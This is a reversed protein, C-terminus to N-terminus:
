SDVPPFPNIILIDIPSFLGGIESDGVVAWLPEFVSRVFSPRQVVMRLYFPTTRDELFKPDLRNRTVKRSFNTTPTAYGLEFRFSKFQSRELFVTIEDRLAIAHDRARGKQQLEIIKRSYNHVAQEVTSTAFFFLGIELILLVFFIFWPFVLVFEVASAGRTDLAYDAIKARNRMM